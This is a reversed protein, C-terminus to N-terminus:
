YVSCAQDFINLTAHRLCNVIHFVSRSRPFSVPPSREHRHPIYNQSTRQDDPQAHNSLHRRRVGVTVITVVYSRVSVTQPIPNRGAFGDTGVCPLAGAQLCLPCIAVTLKTLTHREPNRRVLIVSHNTAGCVM